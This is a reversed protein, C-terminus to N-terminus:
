IEERKEYDGQETRDPFDPIAGFFDKLSKGKAPQIEDDIIFIIEGKKKIFERPVDITEPIENYKKKVTNM